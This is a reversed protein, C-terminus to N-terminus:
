TAINMASKVMANPVRVSSTESRWSPITAAMAKSDMTFSTAKRATPM